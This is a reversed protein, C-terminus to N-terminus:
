PKTQEEIKNKLCGYFWDWVPANDARHHFIENQLYRSEQALSEPTHRAHSLEETLDDVADKLEKVREAARCHTGAHTLGFVLLPLFLIAPGGFFRAMDMHTVIAWAVVLVAITGFVLYVGIAYNRKIQGDWVLNERQCALRALHLPDNPSFSTYWNKLQEWGKEKQAQKFRAAAGNIVEPAPKRGALFKNWPLELVNCDFLEQIKAANTRKETLAKLYRFEVAALVIAIFTALPVYPTWAQVVGSGTVAVALTVVAWLAMRRKEESYLQRQAALLTLHDDQNQTTAIINM